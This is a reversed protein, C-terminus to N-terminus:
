GADAKMIELRTAGTFDRGTQGPARYLKTDLFLDRDQWRKECHRDIFLGGVAEYGPQPSREECSWGERGYRGMVRIYLLYAKKKLYMVPGPATIIRLGQVVGEEDILLSPVVPHGAVTTGEFRDSVAAWPNAEEDYSFAVEHLGQSDRPCQAFEAWGSLERAGENRGCRFDTYGARPLDTVESGVRLDRLDGRAPDEAAEPSSTAACLALVLAGANLRVRTKRIDAM